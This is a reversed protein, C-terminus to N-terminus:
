RLPWQIHKVQFFERFGDEGMERGFGSLGFGGWPGEPRMFGGGNVTVRLMLGDNGQIERLKAIRAAATDSVVLNQETTQTGDPM